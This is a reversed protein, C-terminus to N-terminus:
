SSIQSGNRDLRRSVSTITRKFKKLSKLFNNEKLWASHPYEIAGTSEKFEELGKIGGSQLLDYHRIGRKKSDLAIIHMMYRRAHLHSHKRDHYSLWQCSHCNWYLTMDGGIMINNYWVTWLKIHSSKLGYTNKFLTLPYNTLNRDWYQISQQYLRFLTEVEKPTEAERVQLNCANIARRVYIRHHKPYNTLLEDENKYKNLELVHSFDKVAQYGTLELGRSFPNGRILILNYRKFVKHELYEYIESLQQKSLEGDAIPGGYTYPPGSVYDSLGGQLLSRNRKMLPFVARTGDEFIFGRTVDHYAFTKSM